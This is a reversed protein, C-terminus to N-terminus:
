DFFIPETDAAKRCAPAQVSTCTLERATARYFPLFAMRDRAIAHCEQRYRKFGETELRARKM